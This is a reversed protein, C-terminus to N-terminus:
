IRPEKGPASTNLDKGQRVGARPGEQELLLCASLPLDGGVHPGLGCGVMWGPMRNVSEPM